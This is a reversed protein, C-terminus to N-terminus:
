ATRQGYLRSLHPLESSSRDNSGETGTSASDLSLQQPLHVMFEVLERASPRKDPDNDLCRAIIAEVDAPCEEPSRCILVDYSSCPRSQHPHQRSGQQLLQQPLFVAFFANAHAASHKDPGTDLCHVITPQHTWWVNWM